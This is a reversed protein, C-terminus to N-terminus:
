CPSELGNILIKQIEKNVLKNVLYIVYDGWVISSFGSNRLFFTILAQLIMVSVNGKSSFLSNRDDSGSSILYRM